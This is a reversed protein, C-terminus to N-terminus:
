IQPTSVSLSPWTWHPRPRVPKTTEIAVPPFIGGSRSGLRAAGYRTSIKADAHGLARAAELCGLARKVISAFSHRFVYPSFKANPFRAIASRRVAARLAEASVRFEGQVNTLESALPESPDIRFARHNGARDKATKITISIFGNPQHDIHVGRELECPRAGTIALLTAGIRNAPQRIGEVINYQWHEGKPMQRLVQCKSRRRARQDLPLIESLPRNSWLWLQRLRGLLTYASSRGNRILTGHPCLRAKVELMALAFAIRISHRRRILTNISRSGKQPDEVTAMLRRMERHAHQRTTSNAQSQRCIEYSELTYATVEKLLAYLPDELSRSELPM